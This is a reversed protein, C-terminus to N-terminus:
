LLILLAMGAALIACGIKLFKSHLECKNDYLDRHYTEPNFDKDSLKGTQMKLKNAATNFDAQVMRCPKTHIGMYLPSSVSVYGKFIDKAEQLTEANLIITSQNNYEPLNRM